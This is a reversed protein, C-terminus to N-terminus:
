LVCSQASDAKFALFDAVIFNSGGVFVLADRGEASAEKRAAEVADGVTAYSRGKLGKGIAMERLKGADMGRPVSPRTFYYRAEMPMLRLISNIDKDNVFGIVMYLEKGSGKLMKSLERWGGENHGTDCITLPDRDVVSWRGTLGTLGCVNAFGQRVVEPTINWGMADLQRLAALVTSTNKLQYAGALVGHVTGYVTGSYRIGDEPNIGVVAEAYQKPTDAFTIPAGEKEAKNLIVGVVERVDSEGLVVPIGGKIIGAKESAISKLDNGLQATHDKSVNTIISLVPTIINTSDLRGGLGVEIIAIDVKNKAFIDFAMVTTLEFFSPALDEPKNRIYSELWNCVEERLIMKGNIRIRERFDTLHPSTFLGVKYGASQLVAALTHSTSGKGNTGAVHISPFRKYSDGNFSSLRRVTELGPKYAAAGIQQFQPTASYLYDVAEEYTM